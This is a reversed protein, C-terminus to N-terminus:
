PWPSVTRLAEGPNARELKYWVEYQNDFLWNIKVHPTNGITDLITIAKM